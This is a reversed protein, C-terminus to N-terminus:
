HDDFPQAVVVPGFIEEQVIKMQQNANVLVTPEVFYGRDGSLTTWRHSGKAGETAGSKLYGTVRALQEDSVLPGM